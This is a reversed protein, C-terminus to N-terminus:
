QLRANFGNCFHKLLYIGHHADHPVGKRQRFRSQVSLSPQQGRRPRGRDQRRGLVTRRTRHRFETGGLIGLRAARDTLNRLAEKIELSAVRKMTAEVPLGLSDIIQRLVGDDDIWLGGAFESRFVKRSFEPLCGTKACVLAIRSALCHAASVCGAKLVSPGRPLSGNSTAGCINVRARVNESGGSM